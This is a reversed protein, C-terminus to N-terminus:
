QGEKLRLPAPNYVTFDTQDLCYPYLSKNHWEIFQGVKNGAANLQRVFTWKKTLTDLTFENYVGKVSADSGLGKTLTLEIMRDLRKTFYLHQTATRPASHQFSLREVV